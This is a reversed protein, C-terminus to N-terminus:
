EIQSYHIDKHCQHCVAVVSLWHERAYGLHHHYERAPKECVVCLLKRSSPMKGSQIARRVACRAQREPTGEQSRQSAIRKELNRYYSAREIARVHEYEDARRKKQYSSVRERFEPLDKKREYCRKLTAAIEERHTLRYDAAAKLREARNTQYHAAAYKKRMEPDKYPM